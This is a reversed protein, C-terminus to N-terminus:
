GLRDSAHLDTQAQSHIAETAIALVPKLVSIEQGIAANHDSKFHERAATYAGGKFRIV